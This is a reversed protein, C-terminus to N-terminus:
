RAAVGGSLSRAAGAPCAPEDRRQLVVHWREPAFQLSFRPVYAALFAASHIFARSYTAMGTAVSRSGLQPANSYLVVYDPRRRVLTEPHIRGQSEGAATIARDALGFWDLVRGHYAWSLWGIDSAAVLTEPGSCPNLRRVLGDLARLESAELAHMRPVWIALGAAQSLLLVGICLAPLTTAYRQLRDGLWGRVPGELAMVIVCAALPLLHSAFRAFPMWDGGTVLMFLLQGSVLLTSLLLIRFAADTALSHRLAARTSAARQSVALVSVWLTAAGLVVAILLPLTGFAHSSAFVYLAGSHIRTALPAGLKASASTPLLDGYVWLVLSHYLSVAVAVTLWRSLLAALQQRAWGVALDWSALLAVLGFAEPRSTYLLIIPLAPLLRRWRSETREWAMALTLVSAHILLAVLGNEMGYLSWVGFPAMMAALLVAALPAPVGLLTAGPASARQMIPVLLLLAAVYCAGGVLKTGLPALAPAFTLPALILAWLTSSASQAANGPQLFLGHGHAFTRANSLTIFADDIVTGGMMAGWLAAAALVAVMAWAWTRHM